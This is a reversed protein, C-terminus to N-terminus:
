TTAIMLGSVRKAGKALFRLHEAKRFAFAQQLDPVVLFCCDILNAGAV